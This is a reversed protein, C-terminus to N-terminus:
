DAPARKFLGGGAAGSSPASRFRSGGEGAGQLRAPGEDDGVRRTVSVAPRFNTREFWDIVSPLWGPPWAHGGQHIQFELSAGPACGEWVLRDFGRFPLRTTPEPRCGNTEALLALGERLDAGEVFPGYRLEGEIPVVEDTTGHTQLFRVPRRCRPPLPGGYSGAHVAFAAAIEPRHCALEWIFFGGDSQGAFILRATDIRHRIGADRIVRQIFDVDDRPHLPARARRGWGTGIEGGRYRTDLAAPVILAYGRRVVERRFYAADTVLKSRGLSGYLYVVAPHPGPGQPILARYVGGEIRCPSDLDTFNCPNIERGQGAAPLALLAALLALLIRM